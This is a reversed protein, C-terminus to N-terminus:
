RHIRIGDFENQIGNFLLSLDSGYELFDIGLKAWYEIGERTDTFTGVKIGKKKCKVIIESMLTTVKPDWIKGPIGLSQSLDYPGIFIAYFGDVNIIEDFNRVGKEGEIQLILKVEENTTKLYENRDMASFDAARVFRCLGREGIPSFHSLKIAKEVCEKTQIFPVQIYRYGLDLVWKYYEEQNMPIRVILDFKRAEAALKLKDVSHITSFVHELDVVGFDVGSLALVEVIETHPCKIFPGISFPHGAHNFSSKM